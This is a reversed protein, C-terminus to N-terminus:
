FFFFSSVRFALCVCSISTWTPVLTLLAIEGIDISRPSLMFRFIFSALFPITVNAVTAVKFKLTADAWILPYASVILLLYMLAKVIKSYLNSLIPIRGLKLLIPLAKEEAVLKIPPIALSILSFIPVLIRATLFPITVNAVTAVKFKPIADADILLKVSLILLLYM